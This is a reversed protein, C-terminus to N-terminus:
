VTTSSCTLDSNKYRLDYLRLHSTGHKTQLVIPVSLSRMHVSLSGKLEM